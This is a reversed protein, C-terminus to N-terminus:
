VLGLATTIRVAVAGLRFKGRTNAVASVDIVLEERAPVSLSTEPTGADISPPLEDVMRVRIPWPWSSRISYRITEPDGLGVVQKASREDSLHRRHPLRVYDVAVASALIAIGATAIIEGVDGPILWLAALALVAGALRPTP